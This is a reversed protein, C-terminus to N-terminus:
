IESCVHDPLANTELATKLHAVIALWYLYVDAPTTSTAELCEIARAFGEGVAVFQTLKLEFQLTDM